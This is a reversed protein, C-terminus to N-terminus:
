RARDGLVHLRGIYDLHVDRVDHYSDHYPDHTPCSDNGTSVLDGDGSDGGDILGARIM